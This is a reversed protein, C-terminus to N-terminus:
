HMRSFRFASIREVPMSSTQVRVSNRDAVYLSSSGGDYISNELRAHGDTNGSIYLEELDNGLQTAFIRMIVDEVSPGILNVDMFTDSVEIPVMIEKPTLTVKSTSVGRRVGPDKAEAKPVAARTGIGIKSIELSEADFTVVRANNKLATEDIVYDLFQEFQETNLKGASAIADTTVIAKEVLENNSIGM